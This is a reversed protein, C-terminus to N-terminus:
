IVKEYVIKVKDQYVLKAFREYSMYVFEGRFLLEPCYPLIDYIRRYHWVFGRPSQLYYHYFKQSGLKAIIIRGHRHKYILYLLGILCNGYKMTTIHQQV